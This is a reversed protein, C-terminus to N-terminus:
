NRRASEISTAFIKLLAGRVHRYDRIAARDPHRHKTVAVAAPPTSAVGGSAHVADAAPLLDPPIVAADATSEINSREWLSWVRSNVLAAGRWTMISLAVSVAAAIFFIAVRVHNEPQFKGEPNKIAV